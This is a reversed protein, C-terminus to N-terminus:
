ELLGRCDEIVQQIYCVLFIGVIIAVAALCIILTASMTIGILEAIYALALCMGVVLVVIGGGIIVLWLLMSAVAGADALIRMVILTFLKNM